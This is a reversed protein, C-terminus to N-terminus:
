PCGLEPLKATQEICYKVTKRITGAAQHADEPEAKSNTARGRALAIAEPAARALGCEQVAAESTCACIQAVYATCADLGRQIEAEAIAPELDRAPADDRKSCGAALLMTVLAAAVLARRATM